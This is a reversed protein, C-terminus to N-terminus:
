KLSDIIEFFHDIERSLDNHTNGIFFGNNHIYETNPMKSKYNGGIYKAAKSKTFNGGCIPRTEINNDKLHKLIKTRKERSTVVFFLQLLFGVVIELKMSFKLTNMIFKQNKLLINQM